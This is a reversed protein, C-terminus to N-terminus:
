TLKNWGPPPQRMLASMLDQRLEEHVCCSMLDAMGMALCRHKLALDLTYDTATDAAPTAAEASECKLFGDANISWTTDKRIGAIELSRATCQEWPIHKMRNCDVISVCEAVLQDSVDLEPTITMGQVKALTDARRQKLEPAGLKRESGGAASRQMDATTLGWAEWWFMRLM